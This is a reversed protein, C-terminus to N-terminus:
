SLSLSFNRSMNDWSFTVCPGVTAKAISHKHIYPDLCLTSVRNVTNRLASCFSRCRPGSSACALITAARAGYLM